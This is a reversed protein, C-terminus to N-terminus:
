HLVQRCIMLPVGAVVVVFKLLRKWSEDGYNTWGIDIGSGKTVLVHDHLEGHLASKMLRTAYTTSISSNAVELLRQPPSNRRSEGTALASPPYDQPLVKCSIICLTSLHSEMPLFHQVLTCNSHLRRALQTLEPTKTESERDGTKRDREKRGRLIIKTDLIKKEKYKHFERKKIMTTM